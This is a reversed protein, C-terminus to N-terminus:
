LSSELLPTQPNLLASRIFHLYSAIRRLPSSDFHPAFPEHTQSVAELVQEIAELARGRNQETPSLFLRTLARYCARLQIQWSQYDAYCQMQPLNAQEQRLEILTHGIEQVCFSLRLMQRQAPPHNSTLLIVQQVLDQTSSAFLAALGKRKSSIALVVQQRLDGAIRRWLWPREPHLILSVTLASVLMGLLTALYTNLFPYPLYVAPNSPISNICFWLLFGAGIGVTSPRCLLWGGFSLVPVMVCYLMVLGDIHPYVWFVVFFGVVFSGLAGILLHWAQKVPQRAVASLGGALGAAQVATTGSPWATALWFASIALLLLTTRIGFATAAFGNAKTTFSQPWNELSHRLETLSAHTLAYTHLDQNLRYVLEAGTNFELLAQDSPQMSKFSSRADRISQMLQSRQQELRWALASAQKETFPTTLLPELLATFRAICPKLALHISPDLRGLLQSLAHLRAALVMFDNNLRGIRGRRLRMHHDEFSSANRLSELTVAQAAFEGYIQHMFGTDYQGTLSKIAAKAFNQMRLALTQKLVKSSSQPLVLASVLTACIIGLGIELVRWIAIMFAEDPHASSPLGIIAATYGALVCAYSRYDRYRAAGATCLGIWISMAGLFLVPQQNFVAILAVMVTLGLLTGIVRWFSKAIVEGSHRQMVICVTAMVTTPQPLEFRYALWLAIFSAMLLKFIFVWIVGDTLAFSKFASRWTATM